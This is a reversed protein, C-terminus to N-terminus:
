KKGTAVIYVETSGKRTAQTHFIQSKQFLPKIEKFLTTADEGYLLKIVLNGGPKLIEQAWKWALRGLEVSRCQDVFKVGSTNPAMDSLVCNVGNGMLARVQEMPTSEELDAQIFTVQPPLAIKIPLRDIGVVKGTPGVAKGTYQLWSGPACGLDLIHDGTKFLRFRNHLEELKYIARSAHGEAKAKNYYHDKIKYQVM